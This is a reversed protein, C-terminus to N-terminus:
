IDQLVPSALLRRAADKAQRPKALVAKGGNKSEALLPKNAINQFVPRRVATGRKSLPIGSAARTNESRLAM